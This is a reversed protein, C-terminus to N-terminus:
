VYPHQRLVFALREEVTNGEVHILARGFSNALAKQIADIALNVNPDTIRKGDFPALFRIPLYFLRDFLRLRRMSFHLLESAKDPSRLSCFFIAAAGRIIPSSDTVFHDGAADERAAQSKHWGIEFAIPADDLTFSHDYCWQQAAEYSEELFPIKLEEAVRKALTTKGVGMAGVFGIKM